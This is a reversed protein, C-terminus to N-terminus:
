NGTIPRFLPWVQLLHSIFHILTSAQLTKLLVVELVLAYGLYTFKYYVKVLRYENQSNHVMLVQSQLSAAGSYM